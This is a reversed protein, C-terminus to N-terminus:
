LSSNENEKHQEANYFTRFAKELSETWNNNDMWQYINYPALDGLFQMAEAISYGPVIEPYCSFILPNKIDPLVKKFVVHDGMGSDLVVITNHLRTWFLQDDHEFMEKVGDRIGGKDNKLHWTIAPTILVKYGKQKLGYTFLTEERHAVKSLALDYDHIGARYLFSCHLHDVERTQPILGWQLSPENMANISGTAVVPAFSQPPTLISGGVAGVKSDTQAFLKELVDPEAVCDDDLRWVWEYGMKNARQHNFHQGKREGFDVQWEIGKYELMQFLYRYHQMERLDVPTDNDDFIILKDLKKTQTLVSQIALALTTDYRGRTCISCLISMM